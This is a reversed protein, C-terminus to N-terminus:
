NVSANRSRAVPMATRSAATKARRKKPETRAWSIAWAM